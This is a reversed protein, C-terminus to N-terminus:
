TKYNTAPYVQETSPIVNAATQGTQYNTAYYPNIQSQNVSPTGFPFVQPGIPVEDFPNTASPAVMGSAQHTIM